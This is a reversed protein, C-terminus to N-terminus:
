AAGRACLLHVQVEVRAGRPVAASRAASVEVRGGEVQRTVRVGSMIRASPPRPRRFAVAHSSGVLREGARCRAALRPQEGARVRLTRVRREPPRPRVAAQAARSEPARSEPTYSTTERGGGGSQPICGIFPRFSTRRQRAYTAVFVVSRGTTIGPNVPSGLSGLFKVDISRDALVADLGGVVSRRPCSLQYHVVAARRAPASPVAVWPGPVSICVDLGRCENAAHAEGAAGPAVLLLAAIVVARRV